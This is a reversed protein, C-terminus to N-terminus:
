ANLAAASDSVRVHPHDIARKCVIGTAGAAIAKDIFQHGDTTEGKMAVFLDGKGVERSDFAVGQVTFDASAEGGTAAAITRATWLPNM